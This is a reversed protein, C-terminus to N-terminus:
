ARGGPSSSSGDIGARPPEDMMDELPGHRYFEEPTRGGLASHPRETNCFATWARIIREAAFGDELELLYVAEYKLLRWLWHRQGYLARPRGTLLQSTRNGRNVPM